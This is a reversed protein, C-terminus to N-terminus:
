FEIDCRYLPIPKGGLRYKYPESGKLLDYTKKGSQISDKISLLKSLLGVSLSRYRRDYGNNYLYVTSQYDFCMVAAVPNGDIELFSLKAIRNGDAIATPTVASSTNTNILLCAAPLGVAITAAAAKRMQGNTKPM